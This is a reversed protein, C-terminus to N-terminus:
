NLVAAHDVGALIDIADRIQQDFFPADGPDIHRGARSVFHDIGATFQNHRPQDIQMNLNALWAELFVFRDFRGCKGRQSASEGRDCGNGFGVWRDITGRRNDVETSLGTLRIVAVDIGDRADAAAPM